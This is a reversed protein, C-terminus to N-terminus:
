IQVECSHDGYWDSLVVKYTGEELNSLNVSKQITFEKGLNAGAVHENDKYINLYVQKQASNIFSVNLSSNKQRFYPEMSQVVPGAEITNKSITLESNLCQNGCNVSVTYKGPDLSSFNYKKRYTQQAKRTKFYYVTESLENKITLEFNTPNEAYFTVLAKESGLPTVNMKVKETAFAISGILIALITVLSKRKKM